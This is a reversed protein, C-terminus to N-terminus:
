INIQNASFGVKHGQENDQSVLKVLETAAFSLICDVLDSTRWAESFIADWNDISAGVVDQLFLFSYRYKCHLPCSMLPSLSGYINKSSNVFQLFRVFASSSRCVDQVRGLVQFATLCATMHGPRCLDIM